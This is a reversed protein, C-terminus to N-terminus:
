MGGLIVPTKCSSRIISVYHAAMEVLTKAGDNANFFHPNFFGYVNRGLDHLRSYMNCLGSGDHFLYLAMKSAKCSQLTVPLSEMSLTRRHNSVVTAELHGDLEGNRGHGNELDYLDRITGNRVKELSAKFGFELQLAHELEISMLSDVGLSDLRRDDYLQSDEIECVSRLVRRVREGKILDKSPAKTHQERTENM